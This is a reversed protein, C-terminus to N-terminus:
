PDVQWGIEQEYEKWAGKWAGGGNERNHSYAPFSAFRFHTSLRHTYHPMHSCQGDGRSTGMRGM